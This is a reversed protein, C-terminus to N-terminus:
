GKRLVPTGFSPIQRVNGIRVLDIAIDRLHSMDGAHFRLSVAKASRARDIQLAPVLLLNVARLSGYLRFAIRARQILDHAFACDFQLVRFRHPRLFRRIAVAVDFRLRSALARGSDKPNQLPASRLPSSRFVGFDTVLGCTLTPDAWRCSLVGAISHCVSPLTMNSRHPRPHHALPSM